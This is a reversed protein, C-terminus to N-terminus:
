VSDASLLSNCAAPHRWLSAHNASNSNDNIAEDELNSLAIMHQRPRNTSTLFIVTAVLALRLLTQGCKAHTIIGVRGGNAQSVRPVTSKRSKTILHSYVFAGGDVIIAPLAASLAAWHAAAALVVM